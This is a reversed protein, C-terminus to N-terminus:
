KWTTKRRGVMIKLFPLGDSYAFDALLGFTRSDVFFGIMQHPCSELMTRYGLFYCLLPLYDVSTDLDFSHQVLCALDFAVSVVILDM